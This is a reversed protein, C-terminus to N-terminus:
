LPEVPRTVSQGRINRRGLFSITNRTRTQRLTAFSVCTKIFTNAMINGRKINVVVVVVVVIVVVVVVVVVVM